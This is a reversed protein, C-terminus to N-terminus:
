EPDRTLFASYGPDAVSSFLIVEHVLLVQYSDRTYLVEEVCFFFSKEM